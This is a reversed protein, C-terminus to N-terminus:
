CCNAKPMTTTSASSQVKASSTSASATAARSRASPRSMFPRTPRLEQGERLPAGDTNHLLYSHRGGFTNNVEALVAILAGARDHCFWFSVPNFVYGFVRPFCQLRDRRRRAPGAPAAPGPDLAAAPQRRAPRPGAPPLQAPQQPRGLFNPWKGSGPRAVPLQVFFVPYTFANVVPRLRRHMVQGIVLRPSIAM